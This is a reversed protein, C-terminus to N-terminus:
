DCSAGTSDRLFTLLYSFHLLATCHFCFDSGSAALVNCLWPAGPHTQTHTSAHAEADAPSQSAIAQEASQAALRGQLDQLMKSSIHVAYEAKAVEASVAEHTQLKLYVSCSSLDVPWVESYARVGVQGLYTILEHLTTQLNHCSVTADM